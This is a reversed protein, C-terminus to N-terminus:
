YSTSLLHSAKEVQEEQWVAEREKDVLKMFDVEEEDTMPLQSNNKIAKKHAQDFYELAEEENSFRPFKRGTVMEMKQLIKEKEAQEDFAIPPTTEKESFPLEVLWELIGESVKVKETVYYLRLARQIEQAFRVPLVVMTPEGHKTVTVIEGRDVITSFKGFKNKVELAPLVQMSM